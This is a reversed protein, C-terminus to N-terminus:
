RSRSSGIGFAKVLTQYLVTARPGGLNHDTVMMVMVVMVVMVASANVDADPRSGMAMMVMVVVVMIAHVSSAVFPM